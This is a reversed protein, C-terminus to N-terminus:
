VHARGIQLQMQRIAQEGEIGQVALFLGELGGGRNATADEDLHLVILWRQEGREVSQRRRYRGLIRECRGFLAAIALFIAVDLYKVRISGEAQRFPVLVRQLRDADIAPGPDLVRLGAAPIPPLVDRPVDGVFRCARRFKVGGRDAAMPAYFVAIMTDTVPGERLIGTPYAHVGADTGPKPADGEGSNATCLCPLSLM